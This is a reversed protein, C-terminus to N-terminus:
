RSHIGVLSRIRWCEYDHMQAHMRYVDIEYMELLDSLYQMYILKSFIHIERMCGIYCTLDAEDVGSSCQIANTTASNKIM